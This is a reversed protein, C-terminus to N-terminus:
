RKVIRDFVEPTFPAGRLAKRTASFVEEWVKVEADTPTYAAKSTKLRGLAEADQNRITKTLSEAHAAGTKLVVDKLEPPMSDLKEKKVVIAGIAFAVTKVMISSVKSALQLQEGAYPSIALLQVDKGLHTGLEGLGYPASKVGIKTFLSPAIVDGPMHWGALGKLDSPTKVAPGTTMAKVAGVDGWGIIAFGRKGFEDEFFKREADRAADLAPWNDFLGPLQFVLIDRYIEGLGVATMAAGHKQGQRLDAVMRLEDGGGGGNWYWKLNVQCDSEALADDTWSQFEKAWQSGAPALTVMKLEVKVIKPDAKIKKVCEQVPTKAEALTGLFVASTLTALLLERRM